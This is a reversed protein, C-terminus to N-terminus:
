LQRSFELCLPLEDIPWTTLSNSSVPCLGRPSDPAPAHCIVGSMCLLCWNACAARQKAPWLAWCSPPSGGVGDQRCPVAACGWSSQQTYPICRGRKSSGALRQMPGGWATLSRLWARGCSDRVSATVELMGGGGSRGVGGSSGDM